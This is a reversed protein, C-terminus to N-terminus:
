PCSEVLKAQVDPHLIDYGGGLDESRKAAVVWRGHAKILKFSACEIDVTEDSAHIQNSRVRWGEHKLDRMIQRHDRGNSVSDQHIILLTSVGILLIGVLALGFLDDDAMGILLAIFGLVGLVVILVM